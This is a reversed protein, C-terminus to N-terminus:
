FLQFSSILLYPHKFDVNQDEASPLKNLTGPLDHSPIRNWISLNGILTNEAGVIINSTKFITMCIAYWYDFCMM